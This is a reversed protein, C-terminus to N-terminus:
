STRTTVTTAPWSCTTTLFNVSVPPLSVSTVRSGAAVDGAASAVADKRYAHRCSDLVSSGPRGSHRGPIKITEHRAAKSQNWCGLARAAEGPRVLQRGQRNPM